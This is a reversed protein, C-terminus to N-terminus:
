KEDERSDIAKESDIEKEAAETFERFAAITLPGGENGTLEMKKPQELGLLKAKHSLVKVGAEVSRPDGRRLGPQLALIMEECRETDLQRHEEVVLAPERRLANRYAKHCAQKSIKYDPPFCLEPPLETIPKTRGRGILTLREAIRPFDMGFRKLRVVETEVWLALLHRDTAKKPRKGRFTGDYNRHPM